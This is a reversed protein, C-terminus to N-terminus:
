PLKSFQEAIRKQPRHSQEKGRSGGRPRKAARPSYPPNPAAVRRAAAGLGRKKGRRGESCPPSPSVLTPKKLFYSQPSM